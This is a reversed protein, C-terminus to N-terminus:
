FLQGQKELELWAVDLIFSFSCIYHGEDSSIMEEGEYGKEDNILIEYVNGMTLKLFHTSRENNETDLIRVHTAKRKPCEKYRM